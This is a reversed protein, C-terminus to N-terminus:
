WSDCYSHSCGPRLCYKLEKFGFRGQGNQVGAEFMGEYYSGKSWILRGYGHRLGNQFQGEYIGGVKRWEMRGVGQMKNEDNIWGNYIAPVFSNEWSM